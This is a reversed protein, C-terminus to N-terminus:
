ITFTKDYFTVSIDHLIFSAYFSTRFIDYLKVFSAKYNNRLWNWLLRYQIIVYELDDHNKKHWTIIM